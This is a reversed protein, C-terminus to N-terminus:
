YINKNNILLDNYFYGSGLRDKLIYTDHPDGPSAVTSLIRKAESDTMKKRKTDRVRRIHEPMNKVPTVQNNKVFNNTSEDQVLIPYNEYAVETKL